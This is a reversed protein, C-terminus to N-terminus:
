VHARGIQVSVHRNVARYENLLGVITTFLPDQRDYYLTVKVDNTLTKLLGVTRPSLEIRTQSSLYLRSFCLGSLYNAMVVVALVVVTRVILNLGIGWKRLRSFSPKSQADGAM